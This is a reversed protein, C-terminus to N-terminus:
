KDQRYVFERFDVEETKGNSLLSLSDRGLAQVDDYTEDTIKNYRIDFVEIKNDKYALILEAFGVRLIEIRDYKFPFIINDKYDVVGYFEGLKGIIRCNILSADEYKIPVTLKKEDFLLYGMKSDKFVIWGHERSSIKDYKIPIVIENRDNVVGFCSDVQVTFYGTKTTDTKFMYTSLKLNDYRYNLVQKGKHHVGWKDGSRVMCYSYGNLFKARIDEPNPIELNYNGYKVYTIDKERYKSFHTWDTNFDDKIWLEHNLVKDKTTNEPFVLKNEKILNFDNGPGWKGIKAVGNGFDEIKFDQMNVVRNNLSDIVGFQQNTEVIFHGDDVRNIADYIIPVTFEKALLNFIGYKEDKKVLVQNPGQKSIGHYESPLVFTNSAVDFLGALNNASLIFYDGSLHNISAFSRNLIKKRKVIDYLEFYRDKKIRAFAENLIELSKYEIPLILTATQSILGFKGNLKVIIGNTCSNIKEYKPEVLVENKENIIGLLGTDNIESYFRYLDAHDLKRVFNQYEFPIVTNGQTDIVGWKDEFNQIVFRNESWSGGLNKYRPEVIIDGNM